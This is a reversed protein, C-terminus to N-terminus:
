GWRVHELHSVSLVQAGKDELVALERKRAIGARREVVPEEKRMAGRSAPGHQEGSFVAPRKENSGEVREVLLGDTQIASRQTAAPM